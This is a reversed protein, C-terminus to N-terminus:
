KTDTHNLGITDTANVRIIETTPMMCYKTEIDNEANIETIYDYGLSICEELTSPVVPKEFEPFDTNSELIDIRSEICQMVYDLNLITNIYNGNSCDVGSADVMIFVTQLIVGLCVGLSLYIYKIM